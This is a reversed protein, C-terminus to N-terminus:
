CACCNEASFQRFDTHAQPQTVEVMIRWASWPTQIGPPGTVVFPHIQDCQGPAAGHFPQLAGLLLAFVFRNFGQSQGGRLCGEGTEGTRRRRAPRSASHLPRWTQRALPTGRDKRDRARHAWDPKRRDETRCICWDHNGKRIPIMELVRRSQRSIPPHFPFEAAPPYWSGMTLNM